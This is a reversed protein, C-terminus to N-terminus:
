YGPLGEADAHPGAAPVAEPAAGRRHQRHEVAPRRAVHTHPRGAAAPERLEGRDGAAEAVPDARGPEGAAVIEDLRQRRRPHRPDVDLVRIGGEGSKGRPDLLVAAVQEGGGTGNRPQHHMGVLRHRFAHQHQGAAPPHGQGVGPVAAARPRQRDLAVAPVRHAHDVRVPQRVAARDAVHDPRHGVAGGRHPHQPGAAVALDGRELLDGDFHPGVVVVGDRAQVQDVRHRPPLFPHEGEVEGRPARGRDAHAGQEDLVQRDLGAVENGVMRADTVRTGGADRGLRAGVEVEQLDPGEVVRELFGRALAARPRPLGVDVPQRRPLLLDDHGRPPEIPPGFVPSRFVDPRHRLRLPAQAVRRRARRPRRRSRPRARPGRGAVGIRLDPAPGQVGGDLGHRRGLRGQGRQVRRRRQRVLVLRQVVQQGGPGRDPAPLDRPLRAPPRPSLRLQVERGEEVPLQPPLLLRAVLGGARGARRRGARVLRGVAQLFERPPLLPDVAAQAPGRLGARRRFPAAPQFPQPPLLLRQPGLEFGQRFLGAPTGARVPTGVRVRRVAGGQALRGLLHPPGGVAQAPLVPVGRASM